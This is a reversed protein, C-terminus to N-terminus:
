RCISVRCYRARAARSVFCACSTPASTPPSSTIVRPTSSQKIHIRSPNAAPPALSPSPSPSPKSSPPRRPLSPCSLLSLPRTLALPLHHHHHHHHLPQFPNSSTTPTSHAPAAVPTTLLICRDQHVSITSSAILRSFQLSESIRWCWTRRLRMGWRAM